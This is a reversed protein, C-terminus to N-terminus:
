YPFAALARYTFTITKGAGASRYKMTVSTLGPNLGTFPFTRGVGVVATNFTTDGMQSYAGCRYPDAAARVNAGGLELSIFGGDAADATLDNWGVQASYHCLLRGSAPVTVNVTPGFTALNTYTASTTTESADVVAATPGFIIASLDVLTAGNVLAIGYSGDDLLGLEAVTNGGADLVRMTGGDQLVLDGGNGITIGSGDQITLGSGAQISIGGGVINLGGGGTIDLSGGGTVTIGGRGVTASTLGVNARLADIQRQLDDLRSFLDGPQNINGM